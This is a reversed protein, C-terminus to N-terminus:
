FIQRDKHYGNAIYIVWEAVNVAHDAIREIYKIVLTTYVTFASTFQGKEEKEIIYALCQEYLSDVVDDNKIVQEAQRVDDKIFSDIANLVMNTAEKYAEDLLEIKHHDIGELRKAFDRIDEAHDGLRELDEVLKLIGTVVRLDSAYPREKLMLNLCTKEVLREHADVVDDDILDAKKEDYNYYIDMATRLNDIVLESMKLTIQKLNDIEKDLNM